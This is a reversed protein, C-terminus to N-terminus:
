YGSSHQLHNDDQTAEQYFRGENAIRACGSRFSLTCGANDSDSHYYAHLLLRKEKKSPLKCSQEDRTLRGWHDGNDPYSPPM